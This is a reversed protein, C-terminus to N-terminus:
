KPFEAGEYDSVNDVFSKMSETMQSLDFTNPSTGSIKGGANRIMEDVEEPSVELWSDDSLVIIFACFSQTPYSIEQFSIKIKLMFSSLFLSKNLKTM